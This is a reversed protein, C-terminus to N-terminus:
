DLVRHRRRQPHWAERRAGPLLPPGGQVADLRRCGAAGLQNRRLLGRRPVPARRPGAAGQRQRLVRHDHRAAAARHLPGRRHHGPRRHGHRSHQRPRPHAPGAGGRDPHDRLHRPLREGALRARPHAPKTGGRGTGRDTGRGTGRDTGRYRVAARARPDAGRSGAGARSRLRLPADRPRAGLWCHPWGHQGGHEGTGRCCAARPGHLHRHAHRGPQRGARRRHERAPHRHAARARHARHRAGVAPGAARHRRLPLPQVAEHARHPERRLRSRDRVRRDPQQRFRRAGGPRGDRPHLLRQHRATRCPRRHVRRRQPVGPVARRDDGLPRGPVRRHAPERQGRPRRGQHRVPQPLARRSQQPGM